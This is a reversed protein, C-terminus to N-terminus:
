AGIFLSQMKATKNRVLFLFPSQMLQKITRPYLPRDMSRHTHITHHRHLQHQRSIHIQYIIRHHMHITIHHCWIFVRRVDTSCIRAWIRLKQIKLRHRHHQYARRQLAAPLTWNLSQVIHNIHGHRCIRHFSRVRLIRHRKNAGHFSVPRNQM